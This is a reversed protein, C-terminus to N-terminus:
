IHILSLLLLALDGERDSIMSENLTKLKRTLVPSKGGSSIAVVVPSRDVIAPMIFSCLAPQDVVNVPINEQSAAKAVLANIRRDDTAAIVIVADQLHCPSFESDIRVCSNNNILQILPECFDTAVIKLKAQAKVLLLAKRYAIEGGGVLVCHREKINLFIPLFDM